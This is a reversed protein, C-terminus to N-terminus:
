PTTISQMVATEFERASVAGAGGTTTENAMYVAVLKQSPDIWFHTGWAGSWGYSGTSILTGTAKGDTIYRMGLGWGHGPPLGPFGGPLQASALMKVVRASLIRKGKFEGGNALMQAFRWYDEVTGVLGAAGRFCVPDVFLNQNAAPVLRGGARTYLTVLRARQAGSPAFTTSTMGLPKYLRKTLFQELTMGSVVEVIRGLTDFGALGSYAFRTGPQFDLPAHAYRAAVVALNDNPQQPEKAMEAASAPGSGLGSSHTLLDFVTIARVAPVLSYKPTGTGAPNPDPVAVKLDKFEPLFRSVPDTLRVKGEDVLILISATTVIKSMSALRFVSDKAMPKGGEIDSLGQAELHVIRGNRAVLTVVGSYQKAAIEREVLDHVRQLSEQPVETVTLPPAAGAGAPPAALLATLIGVNRLAAWANNLNNNPTNM